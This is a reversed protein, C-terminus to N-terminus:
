QNLNQLRDIEAAILAGAKQLDRIRSSPKFYKLEFPWLAMAMGDEMLPHHLYVVAAAVLEGGVHLADHDATYGKEIFHSRREETILQDGSKM